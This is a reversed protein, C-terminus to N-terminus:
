SYSKFVMKWRLLRYECNWCSRTSVPNRLMKSFHSLESSIETIRRRSYITNQALWIERNSTGLRKSSRSKKVPEGIEPEDFSRTDDKVSSTSSWTDGSSNSPKGAWARTWLCLLWRRPRRATATKGLSGSATRREPRCNSFRRHIVFTRWFQCGCWPPYRGASSTACM